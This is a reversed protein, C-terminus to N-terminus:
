PNQLLQVQRGRRAIIIEALERAQVPVCELYRVHGAGRFGEEVFRRPARRQQVLDVQQHQAAPRRPYGCGGARSACSSM